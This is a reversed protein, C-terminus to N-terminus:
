AKMSMGNITLGEQPFILGGEARGLDLLHGGARFCDGTKEYAGPVVQLQESAKDVMAKATDQM